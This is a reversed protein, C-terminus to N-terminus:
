RQNTVTAAGRREETAEGRVDADADAAELGKMEGELPTTNTDDGKRGEDADAGDANSV